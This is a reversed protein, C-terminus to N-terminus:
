RARVGCETTQKHQKHTTQTTQTQQTQQKHLISLLVHAVVIVFCRQASIFDAKSNKARRFRSRSWRREVARHQTTHPTTTNTNSTDHSHATHLQKGSQGRAASVSICRLGACERSLLSVHSCLALVCVYLAACSVCVRRARWRM